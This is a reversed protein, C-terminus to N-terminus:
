RAVKCIPLTDLRTSFHDALASFRDKAESSLEREWAEVSRHAVGSGVGPARASCAFATSLIVNLGQPVDADIRAHDAQDDGGCQYEEVDLVSPGGSRAADGATPESMPLLRLLTFTNTVTLYALRLLM